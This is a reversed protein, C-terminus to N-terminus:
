VNVGSAPCHATDAVKVTVTFALTVGTNLKPGVSDIQAPLETGVKGELESLPIAPVQLGAVIFLWAEATYVKVGAVPTQAVATVNVTDTVGLVM